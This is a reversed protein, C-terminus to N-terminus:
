QDASNDDCRDPRRLSRILEWAGLIVVLLGAILVAVTAGRDFWNPANSPVIAATLGDRRMWGWGALLLGALGILVAAITRDRRVFPILACLAAGGALLPLLWWTLKPGTEAPLSAYQWLGVVFGLAAPVLVAAAMPGGRTILLVGALGVLLGVVGGIWIPVASPEPQWTSIVTVDVENGDVVLPLVSELIRDGPETGFPPVPQMLHARHDHWSWRGTTGVERWEPEADPDAFAPFDTGYREANLYTSPSLTNELVTGDPQFWLYPDGRYGIVVVETGLDVTLEVFSDGGLVAVSIEPTPPDIAIIESRYDTPGAPDALVVGTPIITLVIAALIGVFARGGRKTL